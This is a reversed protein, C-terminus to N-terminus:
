IPLVKGIPKIKWFESFNGTLISLFVAIPTGIIAQVQNTGYLIVMVAAIICFILIITFM